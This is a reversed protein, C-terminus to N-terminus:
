ACYAHALPDRDQDMKTEHGHLRLEFRSRSGQPIVIGYKKNRTFLTNSKKIPSIAKIYGHQPESQLYLFTVNSNLLIVHLAPLILFPFTMSKITDHISYKSWMYSICPLGKLLLSRDAPSIKANTLNVINDIQKHTLIAKKLM